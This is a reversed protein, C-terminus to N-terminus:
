TWWMARRLSSCVLRGQVVHNWRQVETWMREETCAKHFAKWGTAIEVCTWGDEWVSKTLDLDGEENAM